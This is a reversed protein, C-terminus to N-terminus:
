LCFLSKKRFVEGTLERSVAPEPLPRLKVQSRREKGTDAATGTWEALFLVSGLSALWTASLVM